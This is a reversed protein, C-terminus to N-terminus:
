KKVGKTKVDDQQQQQQQIKVITSDIYDKVKDEQHKEKTSEGDENEEDEEDEEDNNKEFYIKTATKILELGAFGAAMEVYNLAIDIGSIVLVVYLGADRQEQLFVQFFVFAANIAFTLKFYGILYLLARHSGQRKTANKCATVMTVVVLIAFILVLYAIFAQWWLDSLFKFGLGLWVAVLEVADLGYGIWIRLLVHKSRLEQFFVFGANIISTLKFYAMIYKVWKYNDPKGSADRWGTFITLIIGVLVLLALYVIFIIRWADSSFYFGFEMWAIAIATADLGYGIWMRFIFFKSTHKKDKM